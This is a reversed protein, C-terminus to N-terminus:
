YEEFSEVDVRKGSKLDIEALYPRMAKPAVGLVMVRRQGDQVFIVTFYRNRKEGILPNVTEPRVTWKPKIKWVKKSVQSRYEMWTISSYPVTISGDKCRFMMDEANVELDGKCDKYVPETGGVYKFSPAPAKDRGLALSATLLIGVLASIIKTFYQHRHIM